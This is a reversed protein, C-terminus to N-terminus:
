RRESSRVSGLMGLASRATRASSDPVRWTSLIIGALIWTGYVLVSGSPQETGWIPGFLITLPPNLLVFAAVSSAPLRRLAGYWIAFGVITCLVTLHTLAIWDITSFRVM